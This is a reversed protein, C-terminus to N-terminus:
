GDRSTFCEGSSWDYCSSLVSVGNEYINLGVSILEHTYRFIIKLSPYKVSAAYVEDIPTFYSEFHLVASGGEIEWESYNYAGKSFDLEAVVNLLDENSGEIYLHTTYTDSM